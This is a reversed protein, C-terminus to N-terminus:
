LHGLEHAIAVSSAFGVDQVVACSRKSECASGINALGQPLFVRYSHNNISQNISLPVDIEGVSYIAIKIEM